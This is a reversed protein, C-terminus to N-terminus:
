LDAAQAASRNFGLLLDADRMTASFIAASQGSSSHLSTSTEVESDDSDEVHNPNSNASSQYSKIGSGKTGLISEEEKKLVSVVGDEQLSSSSNTSSPRSRAPSQSGVSVASSVPKSSNATSTSSPILDALGSLAQAALSLSDDPQQKKTPQSAVPNPHLSLDNGSISVQRPVDNRIMAHRPIPNNMSTKIEPVLEISKGQHVNDNKTKTSADENQTVKRSIMSPTTSSGGNAMKFKKSRSDSNSSSKRKSRTPVNKGQKLIRQLTSNWRNKIANDTRGPLLKAIEAWRNGCKAHAEIIVKDEEESWECKKIDPNLHNYWRERCQKGLRGQLQKAIFSWQKQGHKKVLQIVTEDEEKTWPGKVLGPKLVKQWRHLCQVDTRGPLCKAISKWNKGDHEHVTKRLLEDEAETWKGMSARRKKGSQPTGTIIRGKTKSPTSTNTTSPTSSSVKTPTMTLPTSPPHSCPDTPPRASSPGSTTPSSPLHLHSPLRHPSLHYYDHPPAVYSEQTYVLKTNSGAASPPTSSNSTGRPHPNPFLAANSEQHTVKSVPPPPPIYSNGSPHSSTSPSGSVGQNNQPLSPSSSPHHMQVSPRSPSMSTSSALPPGSRPPNRYHTPPPGQVGGNGHPYPPHPPQNNNSNPNVYYPVNSPNRYHSPPPHEQYMRNVVVSPPPRHYNVPGPYSGMQPPPPAHSPTPRSEQSSSTTNYSVVPRSSAKDEKYAQGPGVARASTETAKAIGESSPKTSSASSSNTNSSANAAASAAMISSYPPSQGVSSALSPPQAYHPRVHQAHPPPHPPAPVHPPLPRSSSVVEKSNSSGGPLYPHNAHHRPPINPPQHQHSSRWYSSTRSDQTMWHGHHTVSGGQHPHSPAAYSGPQPHGHSPPGHPHSGPYSYTSHHASIGDRPPGHAAYRHHYSPNPGQHEYRSSSHASPAIPPATKMMNNKSPLAQSSNSAVKALAGLADLGM